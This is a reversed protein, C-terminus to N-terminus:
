ESPARINTIKEKLDGNQPNMNLARQYVDLAREIQGDKKYADGLHGAITPDEPLLDRAKELFEIAEKVRNQKFYVWGLSDIIYGNDPKLQLARKILREAEDLKIGREAYSYGIYNIADANDPDLTLVTEMAEISERQKNRKGCLVGLRFHLGIDNPSLSIGKRV